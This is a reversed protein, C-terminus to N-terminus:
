SCQLMGHIDVLERLGAFDDRHEFEAEVPGHGPLDRGSLGEVAHGVLDVGDHALVLVLGALEIRQFSTPRQWRVATWPRPGVMADTSTFPLIFRTGAGARPADDRVNASSGPQRHAVNEGESRSM